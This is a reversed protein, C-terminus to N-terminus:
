PAVGTLFNITCGQFDGRYLVITKKAYRKRQYVVWGQNEQDFVLWKDEYTVRMGQNDMLAKVVNMM